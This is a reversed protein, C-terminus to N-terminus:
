VSPDLLVSVGEGVEEAGCLVALFLVSGFFREVHCTAGVGTLMVQGMKDWHFLM